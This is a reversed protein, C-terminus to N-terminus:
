SIREPHSRLLDIVIGLDYGNRIYIICHRSGPDVASRKTRELDYANEFRLTKM